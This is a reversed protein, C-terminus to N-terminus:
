SPKSFKSMYAYRIEGQADDLQDFELTFEATIGTAEDEFTRFLGNKDETGTISSLESM